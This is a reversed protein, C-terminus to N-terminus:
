SRNQKARVDVTNRFAAIVVTIDAREARNFDRLCERFLVDDRLMREFHDDKLVFFATQDAAPCHISLQRFPFEIEDAATAFCNAFADTNDAAIRCLEGRDLALFSADSGIQFQVDLLAADQFSFLYVDADDFADHSDVPPVHRDLAKRIM